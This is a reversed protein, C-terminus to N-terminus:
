AMLQLLRCSFENRMKDWQKTFCLSLIFHASAYTELLNLRLAIELKLKRVKGPTLRTM